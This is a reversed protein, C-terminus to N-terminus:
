RESGGQHRSTWMPPCHSVESSTLPVVSVVFHQNRATDGDLSSRQHGSHWRRGHGRYGMKVGPLEAKVYINTDDDIMNIVYSQVRRNCCFVNDFMHEVENRVLTVANTAPTFLARTNM